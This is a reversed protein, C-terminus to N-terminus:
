SVKSKYLAKLEELDARSYKVTTHKLKMLEDYTDRGEEDIYRPIYVEKLGSKLCNCQYCQPRVAREEFLIANTRGDMLHGCQLEKWPRIDGCTYCQAYGNDDAYKQRIYKSFLAWVEKKLKSISKRKM